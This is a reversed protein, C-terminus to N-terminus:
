VSIVAQSSMMQGRKITGSSDKVEECEEMIRNLDPSKEEQKVVEKEGGNKVKAQSIRAPYNLPLIMSIVLLWAIIMRSLKKRTNRM